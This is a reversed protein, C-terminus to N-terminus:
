RKGFSSFVSAQIEFRRTPKAVMNVLTKISESVCAEVFVSILAGVLLVAIGM